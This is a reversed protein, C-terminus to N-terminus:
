VVVEPSAPKMTPYSAMERIGCEGYGEVKGRAIRIYGQEGWKPGWSNKVKWYKQDGGFMTKDVGYGVALVGHDLTQGCADNTLVGSMYHQFVYKDAEIAVSIPQQAVAAELDHETQKVIAYSTVDGETVLGSGKLVPTACKSCTANTCSDSKPDACVYPFDAASCIGHRKVWGFAQAPNGGNCGHGGLLGTDCSVLEQESLEVLERGAAVMAGELAGAASFTWCSGCHGQNKVSSVGGKAVWDIEDPVTFGVPKTFQPMNKMEEHALPIMGGVFQARFEEFTLDTFPTVGLKYSLNKVNSAEIMRLNSQFIEFRRQKEEGTYTRGHTQMFAEFWTRGHTQMFAEFMNANAEPEAAVSWALLTFFCVAGIM